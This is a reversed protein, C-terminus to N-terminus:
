GVMKAKKGRESSNEKINRREEKTMRKRECKRRKICGGGVGDGLHCRGIDRGTYKGFYV